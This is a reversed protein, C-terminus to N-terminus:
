KAKRKTYVVSGAVAAAAAAACLCIIIVTKGSTDAASGSLETASTLATYETAESKGSVTEGFAYTVTEDSATANAPIYTSVSGDEATVSKKEEATSSQKGDSAFPPAKASTSVPSTSQRAATEEGSNLKAM